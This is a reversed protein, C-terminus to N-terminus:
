ARRPAARAEAEEDGGLERGLARPDAVRGLLARREDLGGGAQLGLLVPELGPDELDAALDLGISLSPSPAASRTLCSLARSSCARIAAPSMASVPLPM